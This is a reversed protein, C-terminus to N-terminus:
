FLIFMGIASIALGLAAGSMVERPTHAGLRLRSAMIFGALVIAALMPYFVTSVETIKNLAVLMGVLGWATISHVSVKYFFTIVTASIVLLDIVIMYRLFNDNLNMRGQEYFMYTVAIYIISVAVFPLMRERRTKMSFSRISGFLKFIGVNVIPIVATVLFVFLLFKPHLEPAIPELAAPVAWALLCFFYTPIFVPHFVVSLIRAWM